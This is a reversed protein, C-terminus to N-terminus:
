HFRVSNDFHEGSEGTLKISLDSGVEFEYTVTKDSDSTEWGRSLRFTAKDKGAKKGTVVGKASVKAILDNSTTWKVKDAEAGKLKLTKTGLQVMTMKTKSLVPTEDARASVPLLLLVFLALVAAMRGLWGAYGAKKEKM